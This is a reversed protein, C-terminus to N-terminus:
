IEDGNDLVRKVAHYDCTARCTGCKVCKEQNIVFQNFKYEIAEAPCNEECQGCRICNTNDIRFNV